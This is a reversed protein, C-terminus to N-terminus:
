DNEKRKSQTAAQLDEFIQQARTNMAHAGAVPRQATFEAPRPWPEYGSARQYMARLRDFQGTRALLSVLKSRMAPHRHLGDKVRRLLARAIKRALAKSRAQVGQDRLRRAQLGLWRLPRTIRWSRSALVRTLQDQVAQARAAEAAARAEAAVARREEQAAHSQASEARLNASAIGREGHALTERAFYCSPALAFGDFFNPPKRFSELLESHEEAVYFRNLGDFYAFRYRAELVIEEWEGHNEVPSNPITAEIVLIWPRFRSFDMGQLAQKEYGEVDIKLFHIEKAAFDKCIGDLRRVPPHVLTVTHGQTRHMEAVEPLATALGSPQIDYLDITGDNAGVCVQLNIDRPRDLALREFPVSTPEVNIGHWGIDYFSKTVSGSEPDHAGVDIYFGDRVDKLARMLMVDEFNQAYTIFSM